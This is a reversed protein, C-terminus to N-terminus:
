GLGTQGGIACTLEEKLCDFGQVDFASFVGEGCCWEM